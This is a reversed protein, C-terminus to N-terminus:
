GQMREYAAWDARLRRSEERRSAINKRAMQIAVARPPSDQASSGSLVQGLTAQISERVIGFIRDHSTQGQDERDRLVAILGGGNSVFDPAVLIGKSHLIEAADDTTPINAGEVVVKAQIEHVNEARIVYPRAGPILVDVPLSFLAEKPLKEGRQHTKVVDDGDTKRERRLAEIDLGAPDYLLGEITSVAVIRAGLRSLYMAASVGSKGFGEIAVTAGEISFGAAKSTVEAATAIGFGTYHLDMPMGDKLKLSEPSPGRSEANAARYVRLVDEESIGMDAGTGFTRARILPSAARGFAEIIADRDPANPDHFIGAKAGGYPLGRFRLDFVSFKYTMARALGAIEATTIDPLMRIGGGGPIVSDVVVVAKMGTDPDYLHTVLEPGIDDYLSAQDQM